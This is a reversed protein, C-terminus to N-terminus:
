WLFAFLSFNSYFSFVNRKKEKNRKMERRHLLHAHLQVHTSVYLIDVVTGQLVWKDGGQRFPM